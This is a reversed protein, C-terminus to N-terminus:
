SRRCRVGARSKDRGTGARGDRCCRFCWICRRLRRCRRRACRCRWVRLRGRRKTRPATARPLVSEVNRAERTAKGGHWVRGERGRRLRQGCQMAHILFILGCPLPLEVIGPFHFFERTPRLLTEGAFFRSRNIRRAQSATPFHWIRASAAFSQTRRSSRPVCQFFENASSAGFYVSATDANPAPPVVSILRHHFSDALAVVPGGVLLSGTGSPRHFSRRLCFDWRGQRPPFAQWHLGTTGARPSAGGGALKRPAEPANGGGTDAM